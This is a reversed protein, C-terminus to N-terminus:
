NVGSSVAEQLCCIYHVWRVQQPPQNWAGGYGGHVAANPDNNMTMCDHVCKFFPGDGSSRAFALILVADVIGLLTAIVAVAFTGGLEYDSYLISEVALCVDTPPFAGDKPNLFTDEYYSHM